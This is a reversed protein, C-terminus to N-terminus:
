GCVSLDENFVGRVTLLANREAHYNQITSNPGSLGWQQSGYPWGSQLDSCHMISWVVNAMDQISIAPPLMNAETAFGCIIYCMNVLPSQSGSLRGGSAGRFPRSKEPHSLIQELPHNISFPIIDLCNNISAVDFSYSNETPGLSNECTDVPAKVSTDVPANDIIPSTSISVHENRDQPNIPFTPISSFFQSVLCKELSSLDESTQCSKSSPSM